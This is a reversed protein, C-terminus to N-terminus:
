AWRFLSLIQFYLECHKRAFNNIHDVFACLKPKEMTVNETVKILFDKPFWNEQMFRFCIGHVHGGFYRTVTELWRPSIKKGAM